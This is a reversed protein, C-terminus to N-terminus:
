TELGKVTYKTDKPGSGIRTIALVKHGDKLVAYISKAHSRSISFKKEKGIDVVHWLVKKQLKDTFKSHEEVIEGAVTKFELNRTEGPKLSIYDGELWDEFENNLNEQQTM